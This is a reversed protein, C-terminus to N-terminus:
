DLQMERNEGNKKNKSHVMKHTKLSSSQNFSKNCESCTFPKEGTHIRQHTRLNGLQTFTKNCEICTFPKEGTHRRKHIKLSTSDKFSTNCESCSFPKEGTHSRKHRKLHSLQKYCKNCESCTYPKEGKHTKQHTKLIGLLPFTEDCEVCTFPKGTHTNQHLELDKERFVRIGCEPCSFINKKIQMDEHIKQHTVLSEELFFRKKCEICQFPKVLTQWFSKDCESCSFLRKSASSMQFMIFSDKEFSKRCETCSSLRERTHITQHQRLNVKRIFSDGCESCTFPMEEIYNKVKELLEGNQIFNKGSDTHSFPREGIHCRQHSILTVLDNFLLGCIDCLCTQETLRNRQQERRQTQHFIKGSHICTFPREEVASREHSKLLLIGCEDHVFNQETQNRQREGTYTNSGSHECVSTTDGTSNQKEESICRNRGHRGRDYCSTEEEDREPSIKNRELNEGLKLYHTETNRNKSAVKASCSSKRTESKELGLENRIYPEEGREIHSIIDPTVDASGAGLSILIKYNEKMVDKYLEKQWEELDEWEEQSFYIVIDEFTVPNQASAGVPM